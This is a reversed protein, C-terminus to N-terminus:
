LQKTRNQDNNYTQASCNVYIKKYKRLSICEDVDLRLLARM